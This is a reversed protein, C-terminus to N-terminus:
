SNRNRPRPLVFRERAEPSNLEAKDYYEALMGRDRDLLSPYKKLVADLDKNSLDPDHMARDLLILYAWSITAHYKQPVGLKCALNRLHKTYRPVVEELPLDKLYCWAVYLHDRHHFNTGDVAGAEFARVLPDNLV